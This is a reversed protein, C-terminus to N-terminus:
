WLTVLIFQGLFSGLRFKKECSDTSDEVSHVPISKGKRKCESHSRCCSCCSKWLTSWFETSIFLLYFFFPYLIANVSIVLKSFFRKKIQTVMNWLRPHSIELLRTKKKKKKETKKKPPPSPPFLLLFPIIVVKPISGKLPTVEIRPNSSKKLISKWVELLIWYFTFVCLLLSAIQYSVYTYIYVLKVVGGGM